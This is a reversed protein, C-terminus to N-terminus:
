WDYVVVTDAAVDHLARHRRGFVIGALGIGAVFSVPFVIVRMAAHAWGVQSGNGRIVRLGFFAMGPTRGPVAWSVLLYLALWATTVSIGLESPLHVQVRSGSILDFVVTGAVVVSTLSISSVALDVVWAALRTFAGAYRGQLLQGGRSKM